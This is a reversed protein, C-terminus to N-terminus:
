SSQKNGKIVMHSPVWCFVVEKGASQIYHLYEMLLNIAPHEWKSSFAQLVSKSDSFIDFRNDINTM